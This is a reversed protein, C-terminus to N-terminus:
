TDGVFALLFHSHVMPTFIRDRLQRDSYALEAARGPHIQGRWEPRLIELDRLSPMDAILNEIVEQLSPDTFDWDVMVGLRTVNAFNSMM